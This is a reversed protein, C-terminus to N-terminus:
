CCSLSITTSGRFLKRGAINIYYGCSVVFQQPRLVILGLLFFLSFSFFVIGVGASRRFRLHGAVV